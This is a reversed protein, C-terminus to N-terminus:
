VSTKPTATAMQKGFRIDNSQLDSLSINDEIELKNTSCKNFKFSKKFSFVRSSDSNTTASKRSDNWFSSADDNTNQTEKKLDILELKNDHFPM